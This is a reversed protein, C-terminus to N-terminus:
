CPYMHLEQSYPAHKNTQQSCAVLDVGPDLFKWIYIDDRKKM